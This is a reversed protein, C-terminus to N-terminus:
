LILHNLTKEDLNPFYVEGSKGLISAILCIQGSEEPSVFYRKIDTPCSIPQNNFIRNISGDLLSGNSFAVNAFRATTVSFRSSYSILLDEMIKKSAGMINVPNAAKDTSVCFFNIPTLDSLINLLKRNKLINNNIM